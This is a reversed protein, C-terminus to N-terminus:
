LCTYVTIGEVRHFHSDIAVINTVPTRLQPDAGELGHLAIAIHYADTVLLDYDRILRLVDRTIQAHTFSTDPTVGLTARIPFVPVRALEAIFQDITPLAQAVLHPERRYVEAWGVARIRQIERATRQQDIAQQLAQRYWEDGNRELTARIIQHICENIAFDSTVCLTVNALRQSFAQCEQAFPSGPIHGALLLNSLYSADGYLIDPLPAHFDLVTAPVTL